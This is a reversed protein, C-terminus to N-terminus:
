VGTVGRDCAGGGGCGPPSQGRPRVEERAKGESRRSGWPRTAGAWPHCRDLAVGHWQGLASNHGTCGQATSTHCSSAGRRSGGRQRPLQKFGRDGPLGQQTGQMGRPCTARAVRQAPRAGAPALPSLAPRAPQVLVLLLALFLLLLLLGQRSGGAALAVEPSTMVPM